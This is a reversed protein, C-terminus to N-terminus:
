AHIIYAVAGLLMALELCENLAGYVDGTLGGLKRSVGAALPAGVGYAVLPAATLAPAAFGGAWAAAAATALAALGAALAAHRGRVARFLGGLGGSGAGAGDRARAYPWGAIAATLFARSWVPTAILAAALLGPAAADLLSALLSARLLVALAGVTVGMAGVRSDKMIELMRERSRHSLLGDATDMLGDMHLAGTIGIWFAAVLVAAVWAPLAERLLAAAAALLLGIVLGALPFCVASRRFDAESGEQSRPIGSPVPLRTLFRLADAWARVGNLALRGVM